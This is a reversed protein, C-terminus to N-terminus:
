KKIWGKLYRENFKQCEACFQVGPVANRRADLIREGCGAGACWKASPRTPPPLIARAQTHKYERLEVEQARDEDGM